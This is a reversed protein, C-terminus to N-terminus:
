KNMMEPFPYQSLSCIKTAKITNHLLMAITMPGIGKPVPTIFKAKKICEIFNCDGTLKGNDLRNIGVDLIIPNTIDTSQILNPVGCATILIDANKTYYTLNKTSSNLVSVTAGKNILMAALPKGVINSSGIIVANQGKITPVISEIIHMCGLPTCPLLSNQDVSNTLLKGMNIPHFGDVDKCPKIASIVSLPDIHKPLPMQVLIGHVTSNSNLDNIRSLLDTQTTQRPLEIELSIMGCEIAYKQKNTVYIKSAPDSGVLIVALCPTIGQQKLKDTQNKADERLSEAYKHGLIINGEIKKQM